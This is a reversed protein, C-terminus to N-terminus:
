CSIFRARCAKADGSSEVIPDPCPMESNGDPPSCGRSRISLAQASAEDGDEGIYYQGLGDGDGCRPRAGGQVDRPRLPGQDRPDDTATARAARTPSLGTM